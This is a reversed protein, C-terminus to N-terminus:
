FAPPRAWGGSWAPEFGLVQAGNFFMWFPVQGGSGRTDSSYTRSQLPVTTPSVLHTRRPVYSLAEWCLLEPMSLHQLEMVWVPFSAVSTVLGHNDLETYVRIVRGQKALDVHSIFEIPGARWSAQARRFMDDKSVTWVARPEPANLDITLGCNRAWNSPGSGRGNASFVAEGTDRWVIQAIFPLGSSTTELRLQLEPNQLQLPEAGLLPGTLLAALLPCIM